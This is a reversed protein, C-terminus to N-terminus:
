ISSITSLYLNAMYVGEKMLRIFNSFNNVYMSDGRIRSRKRTVDINLYTVQGILPKDNFVMRAGVIKGEKSIESWWLPSIERVKLYHLILECLEDATEHNNILSKTNEYNLRNLEGLVYLVLHESTKIQKKM